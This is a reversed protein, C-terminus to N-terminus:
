MQSWCSFIDSGIEFPIFKSIKVISGTIQRKAVLKPLAQQGVSPIEAQAEVMKEDVWHTLGLKGFASETIDVVWQDCSQSCSPCEPALVRSSDVLENIYSTLAGCVANSSIAQKELNHSCYQSWWSWSCAALSLKLPQNVKFCSEDWKTWSKSKKWRKCGRTLDDVILLDKKKLSLIYLIWYVNFVTKQRYICISFHM